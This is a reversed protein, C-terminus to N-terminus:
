GVGGSIKRSVDKQATGVSQDGPVPYVVFMALIRNNPYKLTGIRSQTVDYFYHKTNLKQPFPFEAYQTTHPFTQLFYLIESVYKKM